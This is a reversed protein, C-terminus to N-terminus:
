KVIIGLYKTSDIFIDILCVDRSAGKFFSVSVRVNFNKADECEEYIAKSIRNEISSASVTTSFVEAELDIGFDERGIVEGPRTFLLMRIQGLLIEIESEVEIVYERYLPDSSDRM